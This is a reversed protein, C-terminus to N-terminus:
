LFFEVFCVDILILWIPNAMKQTRSRLDSSFVIHLVVYRKSGSMNTGVYSVESLSDVVFFEWFKLYVYWLNNAIAKAMGRDRAFWPVEFIPRIFFALYFHVRLFHIRSIKREFLLEPMRQRPLGNFLVMRIRALCIRIKRPIKPEENLIWDAQVLGVVSPLPLCAPLCASLLM